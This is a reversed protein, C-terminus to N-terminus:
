PMIEFSFQNEGDYSLYVTRGSLDIDQGELEEKFLEAAKEEDPELVEPDIGITIEIKGRVLAHDKIQAGFNALDHLDYQDIDVVMEMEDPEFEVTGKGSEFEINM